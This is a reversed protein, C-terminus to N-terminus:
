FKLVLTNSNTHDDDVSGNFIAIGAHVKGSNPFSIDDAHGTHLKRRIELHWKGDYWLAKAQVDAVSGKPNKQLLYKPMVDKEYKRYRKTKYLKDGNDAPRSIYIDNGNRTKFKAARVIKQRSVITMKDHLLGLPNTRNAKWHWMDAKFENGSFWDTTFDGKMAFQMAFRDERQPGKTYKGQGQDWIWPKHTINESDDSWEAYFYVHDIYIGGKISLTTVNTKANPHTKHLKVKVAPIGKWDNGNGDLEPATDFHHMNITEAFVTQTLSLAFFLLFIIKTM